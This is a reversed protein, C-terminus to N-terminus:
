EPMGSVAADFIQRLTLASDYVRLEDIAGDFAYANKRGVFNGIVFGRERAMIPGPVEAEAALECNIYARLREGDYVAAVHHWFGPEVSWNETSVQPELGDATGYQFIIRAWFYRFRWGPWPPDGSKDSKNGIIGHAGSRQDPRIWAMVTMESPAALGERREVALYQQRDRHFHLANGAIGEIVDPVTGDAGHATADYGNGTVDAVVGDAIEEMAWHALPQPQQAVASGMALAGLLLAALLKSHM